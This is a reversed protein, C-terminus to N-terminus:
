LSGVFFIELTPHLIENHFKKLSELTASKDKTFSSWKQVIVKLRHPFDFKGVVLKDLLKLPLSPHPSAFNAYHSLPPPLPITNGLTDQM